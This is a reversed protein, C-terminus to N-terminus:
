TGVRMNRVVGLAVVSSTTMARRTGLIVLTAKDPLSKDIRTVVMDM